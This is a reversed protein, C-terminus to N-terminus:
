THVYMAYVLVQDLLREGSAGSPPLQLLNTVCTHLLSTSCGFRASSFFSM